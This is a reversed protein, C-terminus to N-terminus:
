KGTVDIGRYDDYNIDKASAGYGAFVLPATVTGPGSLGLVQFDEGQKLEIHQGLPGRLVLTNPSGLKSAGRMTFPQFYSGDAGAPKLGAHKFESAIYDAALNIGRTTVGRGECEDSALFAIDKRMREEVARNAALAQTSLFVFLGLLGFVQRRGYWWWAMAEGKSSVMCLIGHESFLRRLA